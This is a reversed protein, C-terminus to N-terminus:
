STTEPAQPSQGDLVRDFVALTQTACREWTFTRARRRGAEIRSKRQDASAAAAQALAAAISGTDHPDFYFPVEGGVEPISSTNSAAVLTGAAMAELVPLGFGEYETPYVFAVAGAYLTALEPDDVETHLRIRKELDKARILSHEEATFPRGPSVVVLDLEPAHPLEAFAEVLRRFNKSGARIGVFMFYPRGSHPAAPRFFLPDVGLHTVVIKAPEVSPHLRLIDSATHHSIALLAAARDFCRRREDLARRLLRDPRPPAYIEHILDYVTFVQPAATRVAGYYGGYYLQPKIWAAACTGVIDSVHLRGSGRFRPSPIWISPAPAIRKASCVALGRGYRAAAARAIHGVYRGIGGRARGYLTADNMLIHM